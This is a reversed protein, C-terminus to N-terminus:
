EEWIGHINYVAVADNKRIEMTGKLSPEPEGGSVEGHRHEKIIQLKLIVLFGNGKWAEQYLNQAIKFSNITDPFLYYEINNVIMFATDGGLDTLFIYSAPSMKITDFTFAGGGYLVPEPIPNIFKLKFLSDIETQNVYLEHYARGMSNNMRDDSNTSIVNNGKTNFSILILLFAFYTSLLHM